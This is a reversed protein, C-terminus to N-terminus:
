YMKPQGGSLNVLIYALSVWSHMYHKTLTQFRSVLRVSVFWPSGLLDLQKQIQKFVVTCFLVLLILKDLCYQEFCAQTIVIQCISRIKIIPKLPLYSMM